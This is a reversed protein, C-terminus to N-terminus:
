LLIISNALVLGLKMTLNAGLILSIGHFTTPKIPTFSFTLFTLFDLFIELDLILFTLALFTTTGLTL